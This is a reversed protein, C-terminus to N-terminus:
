LRHRRGGGPLLAPGDAQGACVTLAFCFCFLLCFPPTKGVQFANGFIAVQGDYRTGTEAFDAVNLEESPPLLVERADFFSWQRVPM